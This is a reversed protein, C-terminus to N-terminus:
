STGQRLLARRGAVYGFAWRLLATAFDVATATGGEGVGGRVAGSIGM